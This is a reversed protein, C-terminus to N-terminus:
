KKNWARQVAGTVAIVGVACGADVVTRQTAYIALVRNIEAWRQKEDARAFDTVM